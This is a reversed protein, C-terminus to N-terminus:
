SDELLRVQNSTRRLRGSIEIALNQILKTSLEPEEQSLRRFNEISLCMAESKESAWVSASRSDGDLFAMEGFVTGPSYTFLRKQSDSEPLYIKVSMKGKTLLYLDRTRDGEKFVIEDKNFSLNVMKPQILSIEKESFDKFLEMESLKTSKSTNIRLGNRDLLHDEAWELAMDTDSYTHKDILDKTLDM